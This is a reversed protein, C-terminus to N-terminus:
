MIANLSVPAYEFYFPNKYSSWSCSIMKPVKTHIFWAFGFLSEHFQHWKCAFRSKKACWCFADTGFCNWTFEPILWVWRKFFPHTIFRPHAVDINWKANTIQHLSYVAPSFFGCFGNPFTVQFISPLVHYFIDMFVCFGCICASSESAIEM